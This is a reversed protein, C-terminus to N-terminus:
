RKGALAGVGGATAGVATMAALGVYLGSHSQEPHPPAVRFLLESPLVGIGYCSGGSLVAGLLVGLWPRCTAGALGGVGAGIAAFVFTFLWGDFDGRKVFCCMVAFSGVWGAVAGVAFGLGPNSM